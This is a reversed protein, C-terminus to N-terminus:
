ERLSTSSMFSSQDFGMKEVDRYIVACHKQVMLHANMRTILAKHVELRISYGERHLQQHVRRASVNRDNGADVFYDFTNVLTKEM